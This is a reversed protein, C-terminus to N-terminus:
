LQKLLEAAEAKTPDKGTSAIVAELEAKAGAKDGSKLLAKAYHMRIAPANPAGAAAEALIQIGRKTDGREVLLWGLTDAIAPNGPALGYAKEAYDVAAPDKMEGLVWALNNLAAVNDSQIAVVERYGKAAAALDKRRLDSEALYLRVMVDKPHDRLWGTTVRAAEAPKGAAQLLVHLRVAIPASVQRKYAEAYAAAAEAFKKQDAYLEGELVFGAAEKPRAAQLSRAEKLAEEPKGAALQVAAIDRQLGIQDPRLALAKRLSAIAADHDKAVLQARALRLLPGPSEPQATVLANFTTIAQSTEGTALQTLGLADLLRPDNPIAARAAQAAALAGKTDKTQVLYSILALRANASAPNATVARELMATVEKVPARTAALFEALGLLAGENGPANALVAEYRKRAADPQKDAVDMAALNRTAPLYDGKLALAKEFAARAAKRDGKALYVRGKLDYTLPNDPQKKELKAVAELAQDFERRGAHALVLAVDAQYQAPDIASASELEKFGQNVDGGAFRAQALRTRLRVNDKDGATAREYYGAAGATDGKALAIEGAVQLVQPNDPELKLAPELTEEAKAVQGQRMLTVALLTRPLTAQPAAAVVRRLHDEATLLQGLALEISGALLRTPLHDPVIKLAELVADKAKAPERERLALLAELYHSRADRPAVKKMAALETRAQDFSAEDILLAVLASRAQVNGPQVQLLQVLAQQAPKREGRALHLDAKLALADPQNPSGALVEDVAKLAGPLDRGIAALRAEGVRARPDGPRASLAAAFSAGAEKPQGLAIHAFGLETLLAAQAAPDDLKRGSFEEVLQKAQGLQLMAGALEPVVAAPAFGHELARRLEKEGSSIDGSQVLLTGLLYRAEANAPEKQLANKLQIVATAPNKKAIFDKASAVLKAPDDGPGCGAAFAIAAAIWWTGARRVISHPAM